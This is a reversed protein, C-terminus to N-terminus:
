AWGSDTESELYRYGPLTPVDDESPALFKPKPRDAYPVVPLVVRTPNKGGLHLSTTMPYPTPWMM